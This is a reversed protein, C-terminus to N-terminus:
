GRSPDPRRKALRERLRSAAAALPWLRTVANRSVIGFRTAPILLDAARGVNRQKPEVLTRHKQEYEHFGRTNGLTEALTYAGAMALTSGDGFLSLCSAADGVVAVRGTSWNPLVVQSVSDLYLQDTTQLQGILEPVRWGDNEFARTLM